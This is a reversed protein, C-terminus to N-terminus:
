GFVVSPRQTPYSVFYAGGLRRKCYFGRGRCFAGRSLCAYRWIPGTHANNIWYQRDGRNDLPLRTIRGAVLDRTQNEASKKKKGSRVQDHTSL